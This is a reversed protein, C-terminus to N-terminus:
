LFPAGKRKSFNNHILNVLENLNIPKSIYGDCGANFSADKDKNFGYATQVIIVIEKNNKRIEKILTYGDIDPLKIDMLILDIDPNTNIINLADLGTKAKLINHCLQSITKELLIESSPDDEVILAKVSLNNLRHITSNLICNNDSKKISDKNTPITIYFCSGKGMISEVWIEGGLMNIYAKSISLGLGAGQHSTKIPSDVQVFREFVSSLMDAPIGRGTDKVFFLDKEKCECFGLEIGGITTSEIANKVLNILAANLKEKDTRLVANKVKNEIKLEFSLNKKKITPLFFNRIYNLQEYISVNSLEPCILGAEIKSIDVIDNIINLMRHGSEKIIDIYRTQEDGSLTPDNLLEAFGLIGNMPTRIEHSMNALFASKLKDSREAIERAKVLEIEALRRKTIDTAIHIIKEINNNEDYIPTCSVIYYGGLSELQMESTTEKGQKLVDNFPCNEPPCTTKEGHLLEWCKRGIIVSPELNLIKVLSNNIELVNHNNDLILTPHNIGNFIGRWNKESIRLNDEAKKRENVDIVTSIYYQPVGLNNKYLVVNVDAWIFEGNKHIYRKFFRANNCDSSHLNKIIENIKDIDELPTIEQWKKYALEEKSYGLMDCFAQNVSLLGDLHTISKGVNASEFIIRFKEESDQLSKEYEKKETIDTHAGFIRIVKGNSDKKSSAKNSIWRYSGDKHRFRFELHFHGFPNELYNNLTKFCIEKEDPHLHDEWTKFNNELDHDDYGIQNKWQPSYYVENKEISWDWIGEDAADIVLSLLEEKEKIVKYLRFLEIKNKVRLLFEDNRFPSEIFDTIGFDLCKKMIYSTISSIIVIIPIPSFLPSSKLIGCVEMFHKNTNHSNLIILDADDCELKQNNQWHLIETVNYNDDSLLKSIYKLSNIEDDILLIKEKM